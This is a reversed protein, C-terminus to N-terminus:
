RSAFRVPADGAANRVFCTAGSSKLQMCLRRAETDSAFGKLSLRYVTGRSDAFRASAPVYATV